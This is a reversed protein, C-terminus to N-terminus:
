SYYMHRYAHEGIIIYQILSCFLLIVIVAICILLPAKILYLYFITSLWCVVLYVRSADRFVAWEWYRPIRTGFYYRAYRAALWGIFSILPIVIMTEIYGNM